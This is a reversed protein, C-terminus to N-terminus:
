VSVTVKLMKTSMLFTCSFFSFQTKSTVDSYLDNKYDGVWPQANFTWCQLSEQEFNREVKGMNLSETRRCMQM